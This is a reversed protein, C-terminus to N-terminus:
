CLPFFDEIDRCIGELNDAGLAEFYITAKM